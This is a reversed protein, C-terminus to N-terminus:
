EGEVKNNIFNGFNGILTKQRNVKGKKFIIKIFKVDMYDNMNWAPSAQARVIRSPPRVSGMM